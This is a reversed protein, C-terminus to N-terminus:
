VVDIIVWDKYNPIILNELRQPNALLEVYLESELLDVYIANLFTAKLWWTKGTSRPGFLFSSKQPKEPLQLLRQFM